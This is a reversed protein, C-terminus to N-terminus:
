AAEREFYHEGTTKFDDLDVFQKDVASTIRKRDKKSLGEFDEHVAVSKFPIGARHFELCSITTLRAKTDDKVGFLYLPRPSGNFCYDVELDDREPIPLVKPEPQYRVLQESIFEDLLEYFLSKIVERKYLKMNSVKGVAQAFQLISPYLVELDAELYLRGENELLRNETLMKEFIRRKNPTDIDYEYSLRMITMGHDSIMIKGNGEIGELYIELMDGDEHYFPAILQFIGPRKEVFRIRDNFQRKIADLYEKM